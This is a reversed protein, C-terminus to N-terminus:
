INRLSARAPLALLNRLTSTVLGGFIVTAMPGEIERGPNGGGRFATHLGWTAGEVGVRHQYPSILMILNRWTIGFLTVFGVLAGLSLNGGTVVATLVGGVLAFPLNTLIIPRNEKAGLRASSFCLPRVIVRAVHEGVQIRLRVLHRDGNACSECARGECSWFTASPHLEIVTQRWVALAAPASGDTVFIFSFSRRAPM